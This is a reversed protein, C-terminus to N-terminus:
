PYRDTVGGNPHRETPTSQVYEQRTPFTAGDPLNVGYGSLKSTDDSLTGYSRGTVDDLKTEPYALKGNADPYSPKRDFHDTDKFEQEEPPPDAWPQKEGSAFIAYFVVGSFHIMSATLFM